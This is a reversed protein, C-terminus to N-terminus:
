RKGFADELEALAPRVSKAVGAKASMPVFILVWGICLALTGVVIIIWNVVTPKCVYSVSVEYGDSRKRFQGEMTVETLFSGFQDRPEITIGGRKDVRVRGLEGLVEEVKETVQTEPLDVPLRVVEEGKFM